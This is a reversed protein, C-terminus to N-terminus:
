DAGTRTPVRSKLFEIVAGYGGGGDFFALVVPAPVPIISVGSSNRSGEKQSSWFADAASRSSFKLVGPGFVIDSAAFTRRVRIRADRAQM